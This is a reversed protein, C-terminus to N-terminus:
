LIHDQLAILQDIKGLWTSAAAQMDQASGRARAAKVVSGPLSQAMQELRAGLFDGAWASEGFAPFRGAATYSELAQEIEGRELLFYTVALLCASAGIGADMQSEQIAQHLFAGSSKFESCRYCAISLFAQAWAITRQDTVKSGEAIALEIEQCALEDQGRLLYISGIFMRTFTNIYPAPINQTYSIAADYKGLGWNVGVVATHDIGALPSGLEQYIALTLEILPLAEAFKGSWILSVTKQRSIRLIERKSDPNQFVELSDLVVHSGKEVQGCYLYACGLVYQIYQVMNPDGDPSQLKLAKEAVQLQEAYRGMSELAEAARVLARAAYWGEGLKEFIEGSQIAYHMTASNDMRLLLCSKFYRALAFEGRVDVEPSNNNELERLVSELGSLGQAQRGQLICFYAQWCTLRAWLRLSGADIGLREIEALGAACATEGSHVQGRKEYYICLGNIVGELETWDGRGAIWGWALRANEIECDMEKLVGMQQSRQLDQGWVALKKEYLSRFHAHVELTELPIAELKDQAYQRILDHLHFRDSDTRMILSFDLLAKLNLPTAQAVTSAQASTFPQRFVALKRLVAQEDVWLLNWSYEFAARLSQQRPPLDHWGASLFDLNSQIEKLIQDSSMASTWAAALNIALPVGRLARCIDFVARAQADVASFEPRVRQAAEVYLKVAPTEEWGPSFEVPVPLGELILLHEGQLNVRARSTILFKVKSCFRLLDLLNTVGELVMEAGDLILLMEKDRLDEVLKNVWGPQDRHDWFSTQQMGLTQYLIALVDNVSSIVGLDLWYVGYPFAPLLVKGAEIALRTKGSGGMGLITVLRCDPDILKWSLEELEEHRGVLRTTSTPLNHFHQSSASVAEFQHDIQEYIALSLAEPEARLEDALFREYDRFVQLAEARKGKCALLTLWQRLNVEDFRDLVALREVYGLAQDLYGRKINSQVLNGLGNIVLGNLHVRWARLWDEFEPADALSFGALLEGRFLGAAQVLRQICQRCAWASRHNHASVDNTLSLFLFVDVRTNDDPLFRVDQPTVVLCHQFSAQGIVQRLNYLAQNLSQRARRESSEPWFLGALTERRHARGSEIVLYALLLRVKDSEFGAVPQNDLKSEFGGFLNLVFIAM